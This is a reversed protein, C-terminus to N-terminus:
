SRDWVPQGCSCWEGFAHCQSERSGTASPRPRAPPRHCSQPALSQVSDARLVCVTLSHPLPVPLAQSSLRDPFSVPQAPQLHTYGPMLLDIEAEARSVMSQLLAELHSELISIEDRLWLRVDTAVQDNRSRGTHLKKAVPGVLEGLRREVATHVDEDVSPHIKFSGSDWESAVADLGQVLQAAEDASLLSVRALERAYAKSGEIDQKWLRSDFKISANFSEMLPDTKGTFRGGWLKEGPSSSSCRAHSHVAASAVSATGVVRGLSSVRSSRSASCLLALM